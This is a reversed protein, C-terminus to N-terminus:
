HFPISFNYMGLALRTFPAWITTSESCFCLDCHLLLTVGIGIAPGNVAAALIKPFEILTMMFKGAPLCLTDRESGDESIMSGSKLDAGSSFYPGIGTLILCALSDDNAVDVMVDILDLYLDDSIANRVSPRNLAAILISSKSGTRAVKINGRGYLSPFVNAIKQRM